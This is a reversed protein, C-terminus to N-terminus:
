TRKWKVGEATDDLQIGKERLQVRIKDAEAFKKEQRLKERQEILKMLDKPLKEEKEFSMVGLVNNVKKLFNLAEAASEKGMIGSDVSANVAKVFDFISALAESINLDGDM